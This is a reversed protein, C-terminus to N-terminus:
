GRRRQALRALAPSPPFGRKLFEFFLNPNSAYTGAEAPIVSFVWGELLALSRKAVTALPEPLNDLALRQYDRIEAKQIQLVEENVDAVFVDINDKKYELTSLFKGVHRVKNLPLGVEEKVERRVAEEPSEGKEIGGGPFNWYGKGYTNRIFLIKGNRRIICKM